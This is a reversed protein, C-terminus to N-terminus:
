NKILNALKWFSLCDLLELTYRKNCLNNVISLIAL